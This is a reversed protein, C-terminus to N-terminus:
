SDRALTHAHRLKIFAFEDDSNEISYMVESLDYFFEGITELQEKVDTIGIIELHLAILRLSGNIGSKNSIKTNDMSNILSDEVDTPTESIDIKTSDYTNNVPKFLYYEKTTYLLYCGKYEKSIILADDIEAVNM